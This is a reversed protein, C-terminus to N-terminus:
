SKKFRDCEYEGVQHFSVILKNKANCRGLKFMRRGAMDRNFDAHRCKRCKSNWETKEDTGPDQLHQVAM